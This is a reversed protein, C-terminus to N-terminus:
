APHAELSSPYRSEFDRLSELHAQYKREVFLLDAQRNNTL